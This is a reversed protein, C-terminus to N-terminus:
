GMLEKMKAPIDKATVLAEGVLVADVKCEIMIKIDDRSNIGSESVVIIDSPILMRLRRTTNTDTKFTNLDRNNIGIIKAGALMAKFLEDEDHVEVLCDLKLSEGLKLFAELTEKELLATILLIADAGHAASEYIQWEDFIFDKRLLPVKVEKRIAALYDLSGQFYKVETLVSIASAGSREYEKAIEVPRFDDCLVGRSPSAKKVEAILKLGKGRVAGAFDLPKWQGAREELLSIPTKKKEREVEKKKDAVIRDLITDAM